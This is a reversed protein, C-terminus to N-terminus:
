RRRAIKKSEAAEKLVKNTAVMEHVFPAHGVFYKWWKSNMLRLPNKAFSLSAVLMGDEQVLASEPINFMGVPTVVFLFNFGGVEKRANRLLPNAGNGPSRLNLVYSSANGLELVTKCQVFKAKMDKEVALDYSAGSDNKPELINYGKASYFSSALGAGWNGQFTFRSM